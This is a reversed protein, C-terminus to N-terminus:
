VSKRGNGLFNPKLTKRTRELSKEQIASPLLSPMFPSSDDLRDTLQFSYGIAAKAREGREQLILAFLMLTTIAYMIANHATYLPNVM